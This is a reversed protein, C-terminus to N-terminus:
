AWVERAPSPADVGAAALAAVLEDHHRPGAYAAALVYAIEDPPLEARALNHGHAAAAAVRDDAAQRRAPEAHETATHVYPRDDLKRARDLLLGAISTVRDPDHIVVGALEVILTTAPWGNAELEALRRGLVTRCGADWPAYFRTATRLDAHDEALRAGLEAVLQTGRRENARQQDEEAEPEAVRLELAGAVNEGPVTIPRNGQVTQTHGM